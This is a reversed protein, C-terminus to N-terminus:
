IERVVKMMLKVNQVGIKGKEKQETSYGEAKEKSTRVGNVEM